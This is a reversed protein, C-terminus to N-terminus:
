GPMSSREMSVSARLRIRVRTRIRGAPYGEGSLSKIALLM